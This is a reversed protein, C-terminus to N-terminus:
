VDSNEESLIADSIWEWAHMEQQLLNIKQRISQIADHGIILHLPADPQNAVQLIAEATAQPDNLTRTNTLDSAGNSFNGAQTYEDIVNETRILTSGWWDTRQVGMEVVTVKIGLPKVEQALSESLGEIAFKTAHYAGLKPQATLGGALSNITLIHGQRAERMYPLIAKTVELMGFFNTNFQQKIQDMTLEEVAGQLGYGANNVLVDIKGFRDIAKNVTEPIRHFESVDLQMVLAHEPYQEQLSYFKAPNKATIVAKNGQALVAEALYRGIGGLCGTIFWVRSSVDTDITLSNM